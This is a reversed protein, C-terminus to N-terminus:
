FPTNMNMSYKKKHVQICCANFAHLNFWLKTNSQNDVQNAIGWPFCEKLLIQLVRIYPTNFVKITGQTQIFLFLEM